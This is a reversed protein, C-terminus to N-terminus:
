LFGRKVTPVVADNDHYMELKNKKTEELLFSKISRWVSPLMDVHVRNMHPQSAAVRCMMKCAADAVTVLQNYHLEPYSVYGPYSTRCTLRLGSIFSAQSSSCHFIPPEFVSDLSYVNLIGEMIRDYMDMHVVMVTSVIEDIRCGEVVLNRQVLMREVPVRSNFRGLCSPIGVRKLYLKIDFLVGGEYKVGDGTKKKNYIKTV